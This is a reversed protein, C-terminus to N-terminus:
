WQAATQLGKTWGSSAAAPLRPGTAKSPPTTHTPEGPPPPMTRIAFGRWTHWTGFDGVGAAALLLEERAFAVDPRLVALLSGFGDTDYHDNVVTEAEGLFDNQEAVDARAFRLAIGTSLDARWPGPTRNGPWHSLNPGEPTLGDVSLHPESVGHAGAYGLRLRTVHADDGRSFHM